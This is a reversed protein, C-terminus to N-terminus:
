AAATLKRMTAAIRTPFTRAAERVEQDNFDIVNFLIPARANREWPYEPSGVYELLAIAGALTTPEATLLTEVADFRLDYAESMRQQVEIWEPADTCGDPPTWGDDSHCFCWTTQDEPLAEEARDVARNCATEHAMARHHAEIVAFIPDTASPRAATIALGNVVTGAALAAVAVAPAGALLARRSPSTTNPSDAQSM